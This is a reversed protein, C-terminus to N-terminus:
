KQFKNLGLSITMSKGPDQVIVYSLFIFSCPYAPNATFFIKLHLFYCLCFNILKCKLILQRVSRKLQCVNCRASLIPYCNCRIWSGRMNQICVARIHAFVLFTSNVAVIKFIQWRLGPYPLKLVLGLNLVM